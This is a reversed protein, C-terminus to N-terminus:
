GVQDLSTWQGATAGALFRAVAVLLQVHIYFGPYDFFHPNFDGTRMMQVARNMLEPEDVGLSHPIGAGLAWFRLLAAVGLIVALLLLSRRMDSAERWERETVSM